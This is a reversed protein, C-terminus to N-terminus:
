TDALFWIYKCTMVLWHAAHAMGFPSMVQEEDLQAVSTTYRRRAGLGENTDRGVPDGKVSAPRPTRLRGSHAVAGSDTAPPDALLPELIRHCAVRTQVTKTRFGTM